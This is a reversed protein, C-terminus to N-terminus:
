EEKGYMGKRRNAMHREIEGVLADGDIPKSVYGDFGAGLISERDGKMARATVAIVPVDGGGRQSRIRELAGFGDLGPMMIDMLVLDPRQKAFLSVAEEGGSAFVLDYDDGLLYSFTKQGSPDDDAVLLRLKPLLSLDVRTERLSDEAPMRSEAERYPVWFRMTTGRGRSEATISGGMLGIIERTLALGIGTGQFRRSASGDVQKFRDFILPLDKEPIGIGTDSVSFELRGGSASVRLAVSGEETFKFSNGLVNLLIQKIRNEDAVVTAPVEPSLEISFTVSESALPTVIERINAFLVSLSFPEPVIEMKGAEIKSLDLMDNILALLRSGSDHILSLGQVQRESLNAADKQSLVKSIGLIANMPTRMEHSLNSIFDNKLRDLEKLKTVDQILYVIEGGGGILTDLRNLMVRLHRETGKRDIIVMDVSATDGNDVAAFADTFDAPPSAKSFFSEIMITEEPEPIYDLYEMARVNVLRVSGSHDTAILGDGLSQLILALYNHNEKLEDGSVNGIITERAMRGGSERQACASRSGLCALALREALPVIGLMLERGFCDGKKELVLVGVFPLDYLYVHTGDADCLSRPARSLGSEKRDIGTVYEAAAGSHLLLGSNLPSEAGLRFSPFDAAGGDPFFVACAAIGLESRFSELASSLLAGEDSSAGISFSIRSLASLAADNM